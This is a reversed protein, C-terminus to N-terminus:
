GIPTRRLLWVPVTTRSLPMCQNQQCTTSLDGAAEAAHQNALIADRMWALVKHLDEPCDCMDVMMQELGRLQVLM